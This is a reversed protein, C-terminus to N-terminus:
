GSPLDVAGHGEGQDQAAAQRPVLAQRVQDHLKRPAQQPRANQRGDHWAIRVQSPIKTRVHHVLVETNSAREEGLGHAGEQEAHDNPLHRHRGQGSRAWVRGHGDAERDEDRVDEQQGDVTAGDIRRPGETRRNNCVETTAAVGGLSAQPVQPDHPHPRQEAGREGCEHRDEELRTPAQRPLQGVLGCRLLCHRACLRANHLSRTWGCFVTPPEAPTPCRSPRM